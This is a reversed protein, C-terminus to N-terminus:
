DVESSLAAVEDGFIGDGCHEDLRVDSCLNWLSPAVTMLLQGWQGHAIITEILTYRDQDNKVKEILADNRAEDNASGGIPPGKYGDLPKVTYSEPQKTYDIRIVLGQAPTGPYDLAANSIM